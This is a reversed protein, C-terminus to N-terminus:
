YDGDFESISDEFMERLTLLEDSEEPSLREYEQKSKLESIRGMAQSPSLSFLNQEM